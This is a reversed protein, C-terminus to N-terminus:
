SRRHAAHEAFQPDEAPLVVGRTEGLIRRRVLPMVVQPLYPALRAGVSMLLRDSRSLSSALGHEAVVDAFRRAARRNSPIRLVEDTLRQVLERGEPDAVLRGLRHLQRRERRTWNALAERLLTDALA